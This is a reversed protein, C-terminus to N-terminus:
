ELEHQNGFPIYKRDIDIADALPIKIIKSIAQGITCKSKCSQLIRSCGTTFEIITPDPDILLLILYIFFFISDPLQERTSGPEM